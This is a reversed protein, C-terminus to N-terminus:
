REHSPECRVSFIEEVARLFKVNAANRVARKRRIGAAFSIGLGLADGGVERQHAPEAGVHNPEVNRWRRPHDLLRLLGPEAHHEADRPRKVHREEIRGVHHALDAVGDALRNEVRALEALGDGGVADAVLNARIDHAPMPRAGDAAKEGFEAVESFLDIGAREEGVRVIRRGFIEIKLKRSKM